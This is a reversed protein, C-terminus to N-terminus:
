FMSASSLSGLLAGIAAGFVFLCIILIGGLILGIISCVFGANALKKDTDPELGYKNYGKRVIITFVLGVISFALNAGVGAIAFIGCIFGVMAKVRLDSKIKEIREPYAAPRRPPVQGRNPNRGNWQPQGNGAPGRQGNGNFGEQRPPRQARQNEAEQRPRGQERASGQGFGRNEREANIGEAGAEPKPEAAPGASREPVKEDVAEPAAEAKSDAARASGQSYARASGQSVTGAGNGELSVGCVPCFKADDDIKSKCKPCIM